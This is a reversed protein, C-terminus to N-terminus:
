QSTKVPKSSNSSGAGNRNSTISKSSMNRCQFRPHPGSCAQCTHAFRCPLSNCKQGNNYNYCQKARFPQQKGNYAQFQTPSAVKLRLETVVREWPLLSTERIKRFSEDYMRWPQDGHLKHIERITFMYKLLNCAEHPFKQLYITSFVLFADTWQHITIPTKHSAAQQLEIKGAQVVISLPEDGSTPLLNKLDVFENNWIKLKLKSSVSAGLPVCDSLHIQPSSFCAFSSGTSQSLNGAPEGTFVNDLLTGLASAPITAAASAPITAAASAPITAAAPIAEGVVPATDEVSNVMPLQGVKEGINQKESAAKQQNVIEKALLEYDLNSLVNVTDTEAQKEPEKKGMKAMIYKLQHHQHHYEERQWMMEGPERKPHCLPPRLVKSHLIVANRISRRFKRMPQDEAPTCLLHVGDPGLYHFDKWFGRHGWFYIGGLREAFRKLHENTQVVFVNFHQCSAFQMRRILQGIIVLKVGVGDRLYQGVSIIDM